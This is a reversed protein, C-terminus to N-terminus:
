VFLNLSYNWRTTHSFSFCWIFWISFTKTAGDITYYIYGCSGWKTGVKIWHITKTRKLISGKRGESTATVFIRTNILHDKYIRVSWKLAWRGGLIIGWLSCSCLESSARFIVSGSCRKNLRVHLSSRSMFWLFLQILFALVINKNVPPPASFMYNGM